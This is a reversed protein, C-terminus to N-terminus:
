DLMDLKRKVAAKFEENTSSPLVPVQFTNRGRRYTVLLADGDQRKVDTLVFEKKPLLDAKSKRFAKRETAEPTVENKARATESAKPMTALIEAAEEM